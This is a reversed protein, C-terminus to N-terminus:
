SVGEASADPSNQGKARRYSRRGHHKATFHTLVALVDETLEDAVGDIGHGQVVTLVSGCREIIYEVMEFGIRALRDKYAVVVESVVGRM